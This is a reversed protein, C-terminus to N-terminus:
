PGRWRWSPATPGNPWGNQQPTYPSSNQRAIGNKILFDDFAKSIYEGGNDTRLVKVVHESQREVLTKWEKFRALVESKSKLVYVWINRSFDDIFTLFYRAGGISPTKMPGCVDSHVLELIKKARTGGETPFPRRAQKGEVCGECALSHVDNPVAQVDMGSVMTQLSKMSNANLHGLRKYWLELPHSNAESHALSSTEAGHMVKTDLQYLNSELSAVALMEGNSVEGRMGVLQFASEFGEIHTQEGFDLQCALRARSARRANSHETCSGECTNGSSNIM